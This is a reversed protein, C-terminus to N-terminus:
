KMMKLLIVMSIKIINPIVQMKLNKISLDTNEKVKKNWYDKQSSIKLKDKIFKSNKIDNEIYKKIEPIFSNQIISSNWNEPIKIYFYPKFDTVHCVINSNNITKGYITIIFKNDIDDASIDLMPFEIDIM